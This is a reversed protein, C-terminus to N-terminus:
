KPKAAAADAAKKKALLEEVSLPQAKPASGWGLKRKKAVPEPAIATADDSPPPPPPVDSSPPPPPVDDSPPPPPPALEADPPPPPPADM